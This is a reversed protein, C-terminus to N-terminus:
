VMRKKKQEPEIDKPAQLALLRGQLDQIMSDKQQVLVDSRERDKQFRAIQENKAQLERELILLAQQLPANRDVTDVEHDNTKFHELVKETNLLYYFKATGDISVKKYYAAHDIKTSTVWRSIMRSITRYSKGTMIAAEETRVFEKKKLEEIEHISPM